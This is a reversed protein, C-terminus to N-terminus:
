NEWAEFEDLRVAAEEAAEPSRLDKNALISELLHNM